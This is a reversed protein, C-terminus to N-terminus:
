RHGRCSQCGHQPHVLGRDRHHVSGCFVGTSLPDFANVRLMFWAILVLGVAGVVDLVPGAQPAARTRSRWPTWVMALFAGLLLGSLTDTGYVRPTWSRGSVAM